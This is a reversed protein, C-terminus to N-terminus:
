EPEGKCTKLEEANDYTCFATDSKYIKNSCASLAMSLVIIVFAAQLFTYGHDLLKM